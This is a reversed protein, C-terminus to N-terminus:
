DSGSSADRTRAAAKRARKGHAAGAEEEGDGEGEPQQKNGAQLHARLASMCAQSLSPEDSGETAPTLAVAVPLFDDLSEVSTEFVKRRGEYGAICLRFGPQKGWNVTRKNKREFWEIAYMKKADDDYASDFNRRGLGVAFEGEFNSLKILFLAGRKSINNRLYASGLEHDNLLAVQRDRETYGTDGGRQPYTVINVEAASTSAGLKQRDVRRPAKSGKPAEAASESSSAAGSTLLVLASCPVPAPPAIVHTKLTKWMEDWPPLFTPLELGAGMMVPQGIVVTDSTPHSRHWSALAAWKRQAQSTESANLHSYEWRALDAFVKDRKWASDEAWPTVGPNIGIDPYRNMLPVGAPKTRLVKVLEVRGTTPNNHEVWNEEWPGWEDKEFSPVDALSMKYHSVVEGRADDWKHRWILPAKIRSIEDQNICGDFWKTFAFTVLM